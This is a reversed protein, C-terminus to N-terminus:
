RPSMMISRQDFDHAVLWLAARDEGLERVVVEARQEGAAKSSTRRRAAAEGRMSQSSRPSRAAAAEAAIPARAAPRSGSVRARIWRVVSRRRRLRRSRPGAAEPRDAPRPGPGPTGGTGSRRSGGALRRGSSASRGLPGRTDRDRRGGERTARPAVPSGHANSGGPARPMPPPPRPEPRSTNRRRPPAPPGPGRSAPRSRRSPSSTPM